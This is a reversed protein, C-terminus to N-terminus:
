SDTLFCDVTIDIVERGRVDYGTEQEDLFEDYLIKQLEEKEQDIYNARDSVSRLDKIVSDLLDFDEQTAEEWGLDRFLSELLKYIDNINM